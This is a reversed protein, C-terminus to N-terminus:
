RTVWLEVDDLYVATTIGLGDNKVGFHVKIRQGAYARLDFSGSHWAQEYETWITSQLIEDDSARLVCFYIRDADPWATVPFYFFSLAAQTVGGPIEVAQQVSSYAYINSGSAIGLRMSRAGSHARSFSYGAAYITHPIEWAGDTEFGANVILQTRAPTPTTTPM